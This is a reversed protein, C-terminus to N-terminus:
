RKVIPLIHSEGDRNIVQVFYIGAKFDSTNIKQQANVHNEIEISFVNQGIANLINLNLVDNADAIDLVLNEGFPNPYANVNKALNKDLIGVSSTDVVEPVESLTHQSLFNWIETTAFVDNNPSLWTHEGENVRYFLVEKESDCDNYLFKDVTYGDNAVDPLATEEAVPNCALRDVWFDVTAEASNLGLLSGDTYSITADATGHIHIVSIPREAMCDDSTLLPLSGSVSAIAAVRHNLDCALKQSMMGGMSFGTVYIRTSDINYRAQMSDILSSLFGVDDVGQNLAIGAINAGNNWATGLFSSVAEPTVVIVNATDAVNHFGVNSFNENSDGLGHLALILPVNANSTEYISPVYLTYERLEEGYTVTETVAQAFMQCSFLMFFTTLLTKM